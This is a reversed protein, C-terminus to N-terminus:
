FPYTDPSYTQVLPAARQLQEKDWSILPVGLKHALAVYIADGARLRLDAALGSALHLLATDVAKIDFNHYLAMATQRAAFPQQTIRSLAAALEVIIFEPAVFIGHALTYRNSWTESARHNSDSQMLRSVWVSADVVVSTPM